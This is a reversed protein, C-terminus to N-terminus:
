RVQVETIARMKLNADYPTQMDMSTVEAYDRVNFIEGDAGVTFYANNTVMLHCLDYLYTAAPWIHAARVWRNGYQILQAASVYHGGPSKCLADCRERIVGIIRGGGMLEDGICVQSIPKWVNHKMLVFLTSDLGLGYDPVTPGVHGYPNLAAEAVRQAEAIVDPDSSEEYDAFERITGSASMIPIKNTDTALCWLRNLRMASAADPHEGAQIMCGDPGRLYHNTSVHIGDITVMPTETGDFLYTTTVIAGAALVDGIHIASIPRVSNDLMVIQTDPAFCCIDVGTITGLFTVLPNCTLNEGFTIASIAAYTFAIFIGYVRSFIDKMRVFSMRVRTGLLRFSNVFNIVFDSFGKLLSVIGGEIDVVKKYVGEVVGTVTNIGTYIPDIVDPAHQRVQESVCFNVTEALDFGYFKAFPMVSPMCRYQGWNQQIEYYNSLEAIIYAVIGLGLTILVLTIVSPPEKYSDLVAPDGKSGVFAGIKKMVLLAEKELDDPVQPVGTSLRPATSLSPGISVSM